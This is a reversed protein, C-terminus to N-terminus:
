VSTRFRGISRHFYLGSGVRTSGSLGAVFSACDHNFTDVFEADTASKAYIDAWRVHQPHLIASRINRMRSVTEM